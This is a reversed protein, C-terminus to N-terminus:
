NGSSDVAIAYIYDYGNGGLYTSYALSSSHPSFKTVFASPWQGPSVGTVKAPPASNYPNKTPFDISYTYGTVYASGASDAAIGQSVGVQLNGTGTPWRIQATKSGALYSAYSLVPDIILARSHDYNGLRFRVQNGAVAFRGEVSTKKDGDLQYLMPKKFSTPGNSASLVLNGEADVSPRAGDIRWAIRSPDAGPAVVFDYELQRQNGYFVLDVGPYVQAYNVKGYTPIGSRWNKPDNGIFYSVVGAQRALGAAKAKANAGILSMRLTDVSAASAPQQRELNLVVKGPTLFLAYGSGRSLFQVTSALHGENPEFSLPVSMLKAETRNTSLPLSRSAAPVGQPKGLGFSISIIALAMAARLARRMPRTAAIQLEALMKLIDM